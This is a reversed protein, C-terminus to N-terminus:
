TAGVDSAPTLHARTYLRALAAALPLSPLPHKISEVRDLLVHRRRTPDHAILASPYLRAVRTTHTIQNGILIDFEKKAHQGVASGVNDVDITRTVIAGNKYL